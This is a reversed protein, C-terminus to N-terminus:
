FYILQPKLQCATGKLTNRPWDLRHLACIAHVGLVGLVGHQLLRSLPRSGRLGVRAGSSASRLAHLALHTNNFLASLCVQSFLDRFLCCVRREDSNVAYRWM